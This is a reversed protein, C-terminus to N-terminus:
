VPVFPCSFLSRKPRIKLALPICDILSVQTSEPFFVAQVVIGSCDSKSRDAPRDHNIVLDTTADFEVATQLWVHSNATWIAGPNKMEHVNDVIDFHLDRVHDTAFVVQRIRSFM